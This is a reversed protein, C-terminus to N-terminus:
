ANSEKLISDIVADLEEQIKPDTCNILISFVLQEKPYVFFNAYGGVGNGVHGFFKRGKADESVQWGLGYYTSNGDVQQATLFQNLVGEEINVKTDLFAQGFKAIDESTSLYGGGALKYFNDVPIAKKFGSISKTYFTTVRNQEKLAFIDNVGLADLNKSNSQSDSEYYCQPCYTSNMGLPNLVKVQVYEEFPIGSAEQMAASIMAWDFSNYLYETGPKYVLPDDKFIKLGQKISLPENLGYEKGKYVRIGAIHSALQRITFDWEKKPYDPLYTYYSEDLDIFGEQVMHALATAAIPKSVSAIRFISKIPDIYQKEDINAYGYGKQFVSKGEKLVTIAIGPVKDEIILQQLLYDVKVLGTLETDDALIRKAAFVNKLYKLIPNM